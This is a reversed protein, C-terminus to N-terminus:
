VPVADRHDQTFLTPDAAAVAEAPVACALEGIMAQADGLEALVKGFRALRKPTSAARDWDKRLRGIAVRTLHGYVICRIDGATPKMGARRLQEIESRVRAKLEIPNDHSPVPEIHIPDRCVFVTDVISSGTGHIHISGGMEAPCPLAATCTLGADLIAVGVAQYPELKNHHFTFALPAGPKLARAMASYVSALGDTFNDIGRAQTTNGTLEDASRSSLRNFGEAESSVLQRLWVYCFDMLEGYQVNGFYPPDTFVADLSHPPLEVAASSACRICVSRARAEKKREGIWEGRIPITVKRRGNQRVEFPADRDHKARAYKEIINGWGGSGVNSGNGNIIGLLNIRM